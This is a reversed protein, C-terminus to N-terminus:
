IREKMCEALTHNSFHMDREIKLGMPGRVEELETLSFYGLEPFDGHVWGFFLWSGDEQKEGEITYWAWKNWLTFFKVVIPVEEPKKKETAGFKPLKRIIDTTLLKM